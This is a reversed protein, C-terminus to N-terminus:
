STVACTCNAIKLINRIRLKVIASSFPKLIYDEAGLNLGKEEADKSGLGTIFVVPIDRTKETDKLISLVEYGDMGPMLIDLLIIDPSKERAATIGTQGDTAGYIAYQSSLIQRLAVINAPEDDIILVSNQHTNKM